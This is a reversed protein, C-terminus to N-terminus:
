YDEPLLITTVSRDWETIIYFKTGKRDTYVSFLRGGHRLARENEQRDEECLDGWDGHIHRAFAATTDEFVLSNLANRTAVIKGYPFKPPAEGPM